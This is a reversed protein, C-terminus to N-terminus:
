RIMCSLPQISRRPPPTKETSTAPLLTTPDAYGLVRAVDSAVFQPQHDRVIVRVQRGEFDFLAIDSNV